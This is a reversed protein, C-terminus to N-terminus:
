RTTAGREGKLAAAELKDKAGSEHEGHVEQQVGTGDAERDAVDAKVGGEKDASGGGHPESGYSQVSNGDDQESGYGQLGGQMAEAMLLETRAGVVALRAWEALDCDDSTADASRTREFIGEAWCSVERLNYRAAIVDAAFEALKGGAAPGPNEAEHHGMDQDIKFDREKGPSLIKVGKV